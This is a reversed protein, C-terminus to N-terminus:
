GATPVSIEVIGTLVERAEDANAALLKSSYQLRVLHQAYETSDSMSALGRLQSASSANALAMGFEPYVRADIPNQEILNLGFHRDDAKIIDYLKLVAEKPGELVQKPPPLSSPAPPEFPARPGDRSARVQVLAKSQRDVYLMGTIDHKPNNKLAAALIVSLTPDVQEQPISLISSYKLSYLAGDASSAM